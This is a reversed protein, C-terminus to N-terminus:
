KLTSDYTKLADETSPVQLAGSEIKAAVAKVKDLNAQGIKDKTYQMDSLGVGNEKLDYVKTDATFHGDKIDKITQYVAEDVHKVMSTLVHGPYLYDQDSDVGIAYLGRDNASKLAGLGCRGAAAYVIDAGGGFLVDAAAKAKDTDDWSGTYKAPLTDIKPNATKAGAFYGCEFKKILPIEMGGIFGVKGSKSMLGALYGALFSGEEEKFKLSRVNPQKVEDDIIAYKVKPYQPAIKEVAARTNIGVAIVLDLDKESLVTLNPEYDKTQQTNVKTEIVGFDKIAREIGRQASDNFSKDGLGGSDFMIGIKLPKAAAPSNAPSSGSPAEKSVQDPSGCGCALLLIALGAFGVHRM